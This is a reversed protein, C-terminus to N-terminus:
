GTNPRKQKKVPDRKCKTEVRRKLLRLFYIKESATLQDTSTMGARERQILIRRRV